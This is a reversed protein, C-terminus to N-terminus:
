HQAKVTEVPTYAIKFSNATKEELAVEFEVNAFYESVDKPITFGLQSYPYKGKVGEAGIIRIPVLYTSEDIKKPRKTKAMDKPPNTLILVRRETDVKLILNDKEKLKLSQCIQSPISIVWSSGQWFSKYTRM